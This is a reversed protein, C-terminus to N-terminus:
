YGWFQLSVHGSQTFACGGVSHASGSRTFHSGQNRCLLM